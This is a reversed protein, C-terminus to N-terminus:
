KSTTKRNFPYYWVFFWLVISCVLLSITIYNNLVGDNHKFLNFVGHLCACLVLSHTDHALKDLGWSSLLLIIFFVIGNVGLPFNVHWFFWFITIVWIRNLQNWQAFVGTLYGRWGVEEFFAYFACGLFILSTKVGNMRDFMLLLLVPFIVCVLSRKLSKGMISCFMNRKFFYMAVLAGFAPGIGECLQLWLSQHCDDFLTPLICVSIIRCVVAIFYFLLIPLGEMKIFHKIKNVISM